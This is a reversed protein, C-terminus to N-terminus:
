DLEFLAEFSDWLSQMAESASCGIQASLSVFCQLEHRLIRHMDASPICVRVTDSGTTKRIIIREALCAAIAQAAPPYAASSFFLLWPHHHMSQRWYARVEPIEYLERPDDDYGCTLLVLRGRTRALAATQEKSSLAPEVEGVRDVQFPQTVPCAATAVVKRLRSMKARTGRLPSVEVPAPAAAAATLADARPIAHYARCLRM